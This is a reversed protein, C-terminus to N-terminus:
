RAARVGLCSLALLCSLYVCVPPPAVLLSLAALGLLPLVESACRGYNIWRASEAWGRRANPVFHTNRTIPLEPTARSLICFAIEKFIGIALSANMLAHTVAVSVDGWGWDWIVVLFLFGWFFLPVALQACPGLRLNLRM